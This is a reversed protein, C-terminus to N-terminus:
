LCELAPKLAVFKERKAWRLWEQDLRAPDVHEGRLLRRCTEPDQALYIAVKLRDGDPWIAQLIRSRNM